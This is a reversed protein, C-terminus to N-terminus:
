GTTSLFYSYMFYSFETTNLRLSKAISCFGISSKSVARSVALKGKLNGVVVLVVGLDVATFAIEPSDGADDFQM